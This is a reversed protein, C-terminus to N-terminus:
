DDWDPTNGSLLGSKPHLHNNWTQPSLNPNLTRAGGDALAIVLGGKYFTKAMLPSCRCENPAPKLQFTATPDTPHSKAKAANQGFFAAFKSAPDTAYHSGGVGCVGYKTAFTICNSTGIRFDNPIRAPNGEIPKLEPMNADFPTKLGKDCFVRLNAACNQVGDRQEKVSPDDSALFASVKAKASEGKGEQKLYARYLDDEKVYPLLHVHISAALPAQGYKDFAPPLKKQSNHAAWVAMGIKRLCNISNARAAKERLGACKFRDLWSLFCGDGSGGTTRNGFGV